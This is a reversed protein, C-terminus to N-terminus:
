DAESSALIDTFIENFEFFGKKNQIWEAALIAGRAFGERSFAEHTITIRDIASTFEVEHLGTVTGERRSLVILEDSRGSEKNVLQTKAASYKLIDNALTIATGSPADKKQVHHIETIRPEYEKRYKMMQALKHNVGFFINVGISFNSAYIVAGNKEKCLLKIKELEDHWGTTGIILPIGAQLCATLHHMVIAPSTFDIAADANKLSTQFDNRISSNTKMCVEHIGDRAIVSEVMKGMKGYGLIAIKM